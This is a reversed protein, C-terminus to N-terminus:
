LSRAFKITAKQFGVCIFGLFFFLRCIDPIVEQRFVTSNFNDNPYNLIRYIKSGCLGGFILIQGM